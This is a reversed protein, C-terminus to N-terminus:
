GWAGGDRRFTQDLTITMPGQYREGTENLQATFTEGLAGRRVKEPHVDVLNSKGQRTVALSADIQGLQATTGSARHRLDDPFEQNPKKMHHSLIVTVGRQKLYLLGRWLRVVDGARNEDGVIVQRLTEIIVVTPEVSWQQCRDWLMRGFGPHVQYGQPPLVWLPLDETTLGLGLALRKMRSRIDAEGMDEDLYLVRRPMVIAHGLWDRGMALHLALHYLLFSKFAGWEGYVMVRDGHTFLGEVDWDVPLDPDTLVQHLTILPSDTVLKLGRRRPQLPTPAKRTPKRSGRM